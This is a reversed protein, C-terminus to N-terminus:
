DLDTDDDAAAAAKGKGKSEKPLVSVAVVQFKVIEKSGALKFSLWSNTGGSTCLLKNGSKTKGVGKAAVLIAFGTKTERIVVGKAKPGELVINDSM